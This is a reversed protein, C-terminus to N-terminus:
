MNNNNVFCFLIIISNQLKGIEGSIEWVYQEQDIVGSRDKQHSYAGKNHWKITYCIYIYLIILWVGMLPCKTWKGLLQLSHWLPCGKIYDKGDQVHTKYPSIKSILSAIPNSLRALKDHGCSLSTTYIRCGAGASPVTQFCVFNQQFFPFNDTEEGTSPM